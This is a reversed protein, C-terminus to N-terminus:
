AEGRAKEAFAASLASRTLLTHTHSLLRLSRARLRLSRARLCLSHARASLAGLRIARANQPSHTKSSRRQKSRTSIQQVKHQVMATSMNTPHSTGRPTLPLTQRPRKHQVDSSAATREYDVWDRMTRRMTREYDCMPVILRPSTREYDSEYDCMPVILRPSM